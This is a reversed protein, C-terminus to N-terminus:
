IDIFYLFILKMSVMFIVINYLFSKIKGNDILFLNIQTIDLDDSDCQQEM